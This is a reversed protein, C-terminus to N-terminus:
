SRSPTRGRVCPPTPPRSPRGERTGLATRMGMSSRPCLVPRVLGTITCFFGRQAIGDHPLQLGQFAEQLMPINPPCGCTTRDTPISGWAPCGVPAVARRPFSQFRDPLEM